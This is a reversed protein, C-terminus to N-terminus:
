FKSAMGAIGQFMSGFGSGKSADAKAEAQALASQQQMQATALGTQQGTATQGVGIGQFMNQLVSQMQGFQQQNGQLTMGYQQAIDQSVINNAIGSRARLNAGSLLGGRAAASTDAAELSQGLAYQGGESLKFDKMFDQFQPVRHSQAGLNAIADSAPQLLSSGFGIYPQLPATAGGAVGAVNASADQLTDKAMGSGIIAGLADGFGAM